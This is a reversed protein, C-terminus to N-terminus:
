FDQALEKAVRRAILHILGLNTGSPAAVALVATEGVAYVVMYGAKGRIVTEELNDLRVTEAIRVGLGLATAAMAAIRSGEQEPFDSAIALGDSSALMVGRLEPVEERLGHLLTTIEQQKTM